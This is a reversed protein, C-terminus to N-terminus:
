AHNNMQNQHNYNSYRTREFTYYNAPSGFCGSLSKKGPREIRDYRMRCEPVPCPCCAEAGEPNLAPASQSWDVFGPDKCATRDNCNDYGTSSARWGFYLNARYFGSVGSGTRQVPFNLNPNRRTRDGAAPMLHRGPSDPDPNRCRLNSVREVLGRANCNLHCAQQYGIRSPANPM